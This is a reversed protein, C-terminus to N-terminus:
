KAANSKEEDLPQQTANQTHVAPKSVVNKDSYPRLDLQKQIDVSM